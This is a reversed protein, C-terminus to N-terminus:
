LALCAQHSYQYTRKTMINYLYSDFKKPNENDIDCNSYPKPLQTSYYRDIAIKAEVGPQLDVSISELQNSSNKILLTIGKNPNVRMLEDKIGM